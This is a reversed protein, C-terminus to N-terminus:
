SNKLLEQIMEDLADLDFPDIRSSLSIIEQKARTVEEENNNAQIIKEANAIKNALRQLEKKKM